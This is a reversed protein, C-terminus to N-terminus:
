VSSLDIWSGFTYDWEAPEFPVMGSWHFFTFEGFYVKGNVEYFDVRVHPIDTSLKEALSKMLEYNIPKPPVRNAMPHGNIIELHNYDADFFDFKTEENPNQRETAVFMAKVIGNFCFFKYDPLSGSKDDELYEEAFIRPKVNKYPWERGELFYNNKLCSEIRKKAAVKDLNNLDKCIILGGSDHTCKLVFRNPLSNFQIEDFHEWTGLLRAVYDSGIRKSVFDKVLIKDVMTTYINKRDNLKLWQLKENYTEPKKLNPFKGFRHFYEMEIYQKDPLLKCLERITKSSM